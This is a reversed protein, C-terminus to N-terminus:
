LPFMRVDFVDDGPNIAGAIALESLVGTSMAGDQGLLRQQPSRSSTRKMPDKVIPDSV